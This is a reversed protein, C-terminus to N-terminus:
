PNSPSSSAHSTRGRDLTCECLTYMPYSARGNREQGKGRRANARSAGFFPSFFSFFVVFHVRPTRYSNSWTLKMKKRSKEFNRWGGSRPLNELFFFLLDLEMSEFSFFYNQCTFIRHKVWKTHFQGYVYPDYSPFRSHSISLFPNVYKM